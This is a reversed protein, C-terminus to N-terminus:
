DRVSHPTPGLRRSRRVRWWVLAYIAVNLGLLIGALVFQTERTLGAPYIAALLYHEIFGGAYGAEGGAARLANELPTLPCIRGTLEVFAGWAVCPLHLWPIWRWRLALLAGLLAFAIFLFHLLLVGDALLKSVLGTM